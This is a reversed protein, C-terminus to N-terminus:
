AQSELRDINSKTLGERNTVKFYAMTKGGLVYKSCCEDNELLM